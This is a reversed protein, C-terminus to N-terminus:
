KFKSYLTQRNFEPIKRNEIREADSIFCRLRDYFCDEWYSWLEQLIFREKPYINISDYRDITNCVKFLESYWKNKISDNRWFFIKVLLEVRKDESKRLNIAIEDKSHKFNKYFGLINM